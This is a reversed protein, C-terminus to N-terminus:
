GPSQQAQSMAFVFDPDDDMLATVNAATRAVKRVTERLPWLWASDIHAHGVASIRHASAYPPRPSCRPWCARPGRGRHRPRGAPRAGDLARECRACSRGGARRREVPLERMLEGLVELDSCWSGCRTTSSRWTWGARAPVAARRRRHAPRGAPHGSRDYDLIVPQVRGRRLLRGARRRRGTPSACGTTARTAPGQGRQRRPPLGAGRVPLRAHDRRLRPRAVAEVTAGAWEAPCPAPSGSGAPAGPRAGRRAPACRGTSGRGAGRGGAGARRARALGAVTLPVRSATCPAPLLRERLIRAIRQEVLVRDDHM